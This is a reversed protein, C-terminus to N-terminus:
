EVVMEATKRPSLSVSSVQKKKTKHFPTVFACLRTSVVALQQDNQPLFPLNINQRSQNHSPMEQIEGVLNHSGYSPIELFCTHQITIKKGNTGTM